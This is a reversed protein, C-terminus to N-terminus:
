HKDRLVNISTHLKYNVYKCRNFICSFLKDLLLYNLIKIKIVQEECMKKILNLDNVFHRMITVLFEGKAFLHVPTNDHNKFKM